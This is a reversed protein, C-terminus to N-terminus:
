GMGTEIRKLSEKTRVLRVAQILSPFPVTLKTAKRRLSVLLSTITFVSVSQSCLWCHLLFFSFLVSMSAVNKIACGTAHCEPQYNLEGKWPLPELPCKTSYRPMKPKIKPGQTPAVSKALLDLNFGNTLSPEPANIQSDGALLDILVQQSFKRENTDDRKSMQHYSSPYLLSKM